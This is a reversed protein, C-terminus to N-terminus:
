DFDSGLYDFTFEGDPVITGSRRAEPGWYTGTYEANCTRKHETM